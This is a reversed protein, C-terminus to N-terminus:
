VSRVPFLLSPIRFGKKCYFPYPAASFVLGVKGTKSVSIWGDGGSRAPLVLM